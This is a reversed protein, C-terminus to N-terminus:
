GRHHELMLSLSRPVALTASEVILKISHTGDHQTCLCELTCSIRWFAYRSGGGEGGGGGRRGLRLKKTATEAKM